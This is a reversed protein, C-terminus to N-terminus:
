ESEGGEKKLTYLTRTSYRGWDEITSGVLGWTVLKTLHLTSTAHTVGVMKSVRYSTKGKSDLTKIIAKDIEDLNHEKVDVM